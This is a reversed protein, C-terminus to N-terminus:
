HASGLYLLLMSIFVLALDFAKSKLNKEHFVIAGFCFSVLVSGRRIMSVVSILADDLSLAQFYVYDAASLFVSICLIAWHWHFRTSTRRQTFMAMGMLIMQYLNNWSQVLRRDIGVGQGLPAMLYKDYLASVAGLVAALVVYYIWRNHAFRIGERRGSQSLLYVSIVTLIVGLWQRLNLREGFMLLAGVLVWVPRTANIPGVITIPLHKIGLYGFVWSSLVIVAKLVILRQQEWCFDSATGVIVPLFILTSFLTNLFLVPIVANDRLSLKKFVDYFGLLTASLFSLLLWM